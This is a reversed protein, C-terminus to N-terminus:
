SNIAWSFSAACQPSIVLDDAAVGSVLVVTVNGGPGSQSGKSLSIDRRALPVRFSRGVQALSTTSINSAPAEVVLEEAEEDEESSESDADSDADSGSDSDSEEDEEEQGGEEAEEVTEEVAADGDKEDAEDEDEDEDGNEDDSDDDEFLAKALASPDGSAASSTATTPTATSGEPSSTAAVASVSVATSSAATASPEFRAGDLDPVNGEYQKVQAGDGMNWCEKGSDDCLRWRGEGAQDPSSGNADFRLVVAPADRWDGVRGEPSRFVVDTLNAQDIIHRLLHSTSANLERLTLTLLCLLTLATLHM